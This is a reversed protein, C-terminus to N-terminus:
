DPPAHGSNRERSWDTLKGFCQSIFSRFPRMAIIYVLIVILLAM